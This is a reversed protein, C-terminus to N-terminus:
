NDLASAPDALVSMARTLTLDSDRSNVWPAANVRLLPSSAPTALTVFVSQQYTAAWSKYPFGGHLGPYTRMHDPFPLKRDWRVSLLWPGGVREWGDDAAGSMADLLAQRKPTM